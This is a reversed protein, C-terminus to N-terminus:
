IYGFEYQRQIKARRRWDLCLRDRHCLRRGAPSKRMYSAPARTWASYIQFKDGAHFVAVVVFYFVRRGDSFRQQESGFCLLAPHSLGEEEEEEVRLEDMEDPATVGGSRFHFCFCVGHWALSPPLPSLLGSAKKGQIM